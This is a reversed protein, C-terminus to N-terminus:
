GKEWWSCNGNHESTSLLIESERNNFIHFGHDLFTLVTTTDQKRHDNKVTTSSERMTPTPALIGRSNKSSITTPDLTIVVIEAFFLWTTSYKGHNNEGYYDHLTKIPFKKKTM